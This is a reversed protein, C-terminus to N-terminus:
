RHKSFLWSLLEPEALAADWSNHNAEPYLVFRISAGEKRLAEFMAQSYSPYVVDDKAGHFIWWAVRKISGATAPNAGGAIPFAAAFLNPNRRVIEFTGMGGMSLGGVYVQEKNAPYAELVYKVLQQLMRMDKTPEGDPLFTFGEKKTEDYTRWANSWYGDTSCQPFVVIAAYNKRVEPKLFLQGAYKLQSENNSGREGRGHLFFVVPYTKSADLNQPLLIRYPMTDAGQVLWRKQYQSFDQAKVAIGTTVLIIFAVFFRKMRIENLM